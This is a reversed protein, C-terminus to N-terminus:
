ADALDLHLFTTFATPAYGGFPPGDVFGRRRYLALAAAFDPGTGTELSLRRYGRARAEAALHALLAAAVGQRLADPATRMSKIEGAADGLAKLAGLGLLREGEWLAFLAIDPARLGDLDLVHCADAPSQGRMAAFHLALLERVRADDLDAPLIRRSDAV